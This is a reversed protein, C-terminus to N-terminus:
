LVFALVGAVAAIASFIGSSARTAAGQFMMGHSPTASASASHMADAGSPMAHSVSPTAMSKLMATSSPAPVNVPIMSYASTSMPRQSNYNYSQYPIHSSSPAVQSGFVASSYIKSEPDNM